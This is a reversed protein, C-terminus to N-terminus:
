CLEMRTTQSSGALAQRRRRNVVSQKLSPKIEEAGNRIWINLPASYSFINSHGVSSVSTNIWLPAQGKTSAASDIEARSQGLNGEKVEDEFYLTGTM